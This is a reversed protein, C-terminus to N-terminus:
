KQLFLNLLSIVLPAYALGFDLIKVALKQANAWKSPNEKYAELEPKIQELLGEGLTNEISDIIQQANLAQTQHQHQEQNSSATNIPNAQQNVNFNSSAGYKSLEIGPDPLDFERSMMRLVSMMKMRITDITALQRTRGGYLSNRPEIKFDSYDQHGLGVLKEVVKNLAQWQEQELTAEGSSKSVPMTHYAGLLQEFLLGEKIYSDQMSYSEDEGLWENEDYHDPNQYNM